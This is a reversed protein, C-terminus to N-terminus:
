LSLAFYVAAGLVEQQSAYFSRLINKDQSSPTGVVPITDFHFQSTSVVM